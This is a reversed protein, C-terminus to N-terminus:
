LHYKKGKPEKQVKKTPQEVEKDKKFLYYFPIFMQPMEVKTNKETFKIVEFIELFCFIYYILTALVLLGIILKYIM